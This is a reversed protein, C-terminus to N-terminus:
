PSMLDRYPFMPRSSCFTLGGQAKPVHWVHWLQRGFGGCASSLMMLTKASTMPRGLGVDEHFPFLGGLYLDIPIGKTSRGGRRRHFSESRDKGGELTEVDMQHSKLGMSTRVLWIGMHVQGYPYRKTLYSGACWCICGGHAWLDCPDYCHWDCRIM